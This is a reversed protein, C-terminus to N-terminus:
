LADNPDFDAMDSEAKRTLCSEKIVQAKLELAAIDEASQQDKFAIKIEGEPTRSAVVKAPVAKGKELAMAQSAEVYATWIYGEARLLELLGVLDDQLHAHYECTRYAEIIESHDNSLDLVCPVNPKCLPVPKWLGM